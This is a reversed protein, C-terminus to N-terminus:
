AATEGGWPKAAPLHCRREGRKAILNIQSRLGREDLGSNKIKEVLLGLREPSEKIVTQFTNFDMIQVMAPIDSELLPSGELRKAIQSRYIEGDIGYSRLLKEM